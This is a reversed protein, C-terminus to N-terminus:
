RFLRWATSHQSELELLKRKKDLGWAYGRLNGDSGIVRHCPILITIPNAGNATAVARIAKKDGFSESLETYSRKEGIPIECLLQWIKEQFETGKPKIPVSFNKLKGEFYASLEAKLLIIRKDNNEVGAAADTFVLQTLFEGEFQAQLNGLPCSFVAKIKETSSM